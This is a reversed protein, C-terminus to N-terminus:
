NNSRKGISIAVGLVAGSINGALLGLTVSGLSIGAAVGIPICVSMGIVVSKYFARNLKM